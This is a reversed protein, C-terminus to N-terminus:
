PCIFSMNLPSYPLHNWTKDSRVLGPIPGGLHLLPTVPVTVFLSLNSHLLHGRFCSARSLSPHFAKCSCPWSFVNGGSFRCLFYLQYRLYMIYITHAYGDMASYMFVLDLTHVCGDVSSRYTSEPMTTAMWHILWTIIMIIWLIAVQIGVSLIWPRTTWRLGFLTCTWAHSYPLWLQVHLFM